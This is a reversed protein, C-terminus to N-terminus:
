TASAAFLAPDMLCTAAATHHCYPSKELMDLMPELLRGRGHISTGPLGCMATGCLSGWLNRSAAAAGVLVGFALMTCLVSVCAVCRCSVYQCRRPEKSSNCGPFHRCPCLSSRTNSVQGRMMHRRGWFSLELANLSSCSRRLCAKLVVRGLSAPTWIIALQCETFRLRM